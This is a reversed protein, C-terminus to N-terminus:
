SRMKPAARTRTRAQSAAFTFYGATTVSRPESRARVVSETSNMPPSIAPESHIREGNRAAKMQAVIITTAVQGSIRRTSPAHPPRRAGATATM